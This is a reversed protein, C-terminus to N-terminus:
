NFIDVLLHYPDITEATVEFRGEPKIENGEDDFLNGEFDIMKTGAPLIGIHEVGMLLRYQNHKRGKIKEITVCARDKSLPFAMKM